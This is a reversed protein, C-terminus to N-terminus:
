TWVYGDFHNAPERLLIRGGRTLLVGGYAKASPINWMDVGQETAERLVVSALRRDRCPIDCCQRAIAKISLGHRSLVRIELSLEQTLM